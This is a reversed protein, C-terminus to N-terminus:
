LTSNCSLHTTAIDELSKYNGGSQTKTAIRLSLKFPGNSDLCFVIEGSPLCSARRFSCKAFSCGYLTLAQLIMTGGQVVILSNGLTTVSPYWCPFHMQCEADILTEFWGTTRFRRL